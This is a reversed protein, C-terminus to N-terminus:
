FVNQTFLQCSIRSKVQVHNTKIIEKLHMAGYGHSKNRKLPCYSNDIFYLYTVADPCKSCQTFPGKSREAPSPAAKGRTETTRDPTSTDFGFGENDDYQFACGM